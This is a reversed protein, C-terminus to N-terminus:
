TKLVIAARSVKLDIRDIVATLGHSTALERLPSLRNVLDRISALAFGKVRKDVGPKVATQIAARLQALLADITKTLKEATGPPLPLQNTAAPNPEIDTPVTPIDSLDTQRPNSTM